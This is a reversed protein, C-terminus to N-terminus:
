FRGSVGIAPFEATKSSGPSKQPVVTLYLSVGGAAIAGVTLVDSVLALGVTTDHGTRLTAGTTPQALEQTLTHSESLAAVGTAIAGAALVGTVVWGFWPTSAHPPERPPPPPPPEVVIPAPPPPEPEPTAIPPPPEPPPTADLPVNLDIRAGAAPDIEKTARVYGEKAVTV